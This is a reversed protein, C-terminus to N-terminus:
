TTLSTIAQVMAANDSYTLRYCPLSLFWDLFRSANQSLPSIWSDPVLHQFAIDKPMEELTMGSDKQYKVFILAKCPYSSLPNESQRAPALYRVTKDLGPYYFEAASELQPYLPILHDLATKKISVAAPFYFVESTAADVPVFDDALLDFGCGMLIASITSKGNGSDGLFLISQDGRSLACAHFVGMWGSDLRNYMRNLLEMSFKGTFFHSDEPLWQGIIQGNVRLIYRGQFNFVQFFHDAPKTAPVELHAFKQHILYEIQDSEYQVSFLLDDISYFRCSFFSTPIEHDQIETPGIGIDAPILQQEVMQKVEGVFRTSEVSPIDYYGTCWQAVQVPHMGDNLRKIVEYAPMELLSYRNSEEFWFIKKEGVQRELYKM